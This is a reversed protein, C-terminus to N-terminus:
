RTRYDIDNIIKFIKNKLKKNLEDIKKPMPKDCNTKHSGFEYFYDSSDEYNDNSYHNHDAPM